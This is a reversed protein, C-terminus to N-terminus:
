VMNTTPKLVPLSITTFQLLLSSALPSCFYHDPQQYLNNPNLAFLELPTSAM